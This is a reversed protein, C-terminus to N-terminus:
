GNNKQDRKLFGMLSIENQSGKTRLKRSQKEEYWNIKREGGKESNSAVGPHSSEQV